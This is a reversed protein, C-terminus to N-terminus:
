GAAAPRSGPAASTCRAARPAARRVRRDVGFRYITTSRFTEGPRLLTSPFGPRNPTDALRGTELAVADHPRYLTGQAGIDTGPFWNATYVHISPETTLVDLTRGSVPDTLRAARRLRGPTGVIWSHNYGRRGEMQAHAAAICAGLPRGRRFDFPTGAVTLFRGTPIGGGDTEVYRSSPMRLVHGLVTGSGAGALNFYSHNYLNLHTPANTTARYDIRLGNDPTLRYTVAISLTGPMGQEGAPSVTRLVAGSGDALTEVTWVRDDLGRGTGGHLTNPGDNAELRYERGDLTFRAGGIRGAYRGALAGFYYNRNKAQYDALSGFGLAVNARRGQRDPVEVATVIGGYDLFRVTMRGNSLTYESVPSGDALTGYHRAQVPQAAAAAAAALLLASM